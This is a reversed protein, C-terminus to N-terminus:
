AASGHRPCNAAGTETRPVPLGCDGCYASPGDIRGAERLEREVAGVVFRGAHSWDEWPYETVRRPEGDTPTFTVLHQTRAPNTWVQWIGAPGQITITVSSGDPIAAEPPADAGPRAPRPATM